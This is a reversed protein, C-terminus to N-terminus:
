GAGTAQDLWHRAFFDWIIRSADIHRNTKGVLPEPLYQWGGPWTHGGGEIRYFAVEAGDKCSDYVESTVGDGLDTVVPTPNCGDREVWGAITEEVSLTKGPGQVFTGDMRVIPDATGHMELVPVPRSPRCAPAIRSGMPGAVTAIAAIKDSLQCALRQTFIGGNSIGNAYVRQKDISFERSLKTVLASAFGVDNVDRGESPGSGIGANWSRYLGDPYVVIFGKEDSLADFNTLKEMAKGTGARGHFSLVLPVPKRKDYTKPVHVRYSRDQGEFKM